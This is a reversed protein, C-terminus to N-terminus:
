VLTIRGAPGDTVRGIAWSPVRRETLAEALRDARREPVSILLGGSTQADALMLQETEELRGWDVNPSVFEHNSRTGSPIMGARALEKTGDLYPVKYANLEASVGSERLAIHLHGLLGFGTV